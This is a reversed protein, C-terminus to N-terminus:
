LIQLREIKRSEGSKEDAEILVCDMRCEGRALEFRVPMQTRLKEIICEAKVGLASHVTGTMGVDTIYATKNPLIMEDATQVHTHTGLVATVKGDLYYGLARKEGTAEAHFDVIIIKGQAQSIMEDATEFPCALNTEMFAGGMINIVSVTCRGMDLNCIGKGPTTKMPYNAPRIISESTDILEYAERRRFGHNGLTIIDVGSSFLYQASAPTLGNGDASNEGNCIVLGIEKERKLKPLRSRLFECGISGVVDGIFLINM